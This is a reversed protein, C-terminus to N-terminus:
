LKVLLFALRCPVLAGTMSYDFCLLWWLFEKGKARSLSEFLPTPGPHSQLKTEIRQNLVLVTIM